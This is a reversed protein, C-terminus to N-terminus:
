EKNGNAQEQPAKPVGPIGPASPIAPMKPAGPADIGIAALKDLPNEPLTAGCKSCEKNEQPNEFGCSPCKKTVSMTSPRFCM